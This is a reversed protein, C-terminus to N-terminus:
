FLSADIPDQSFFFHVTSRGCGGAVGFAAIIRCCGHAAGRITVPPRPVEGPAGLHGVAAHAPRIGHHSAEGGGSGGLARGLGRSMKLGNAGGLVAGALFLPRARAKAKPSIMPTPTAAPHSVFHGPM